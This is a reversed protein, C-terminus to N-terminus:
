QPDTSEPNAQAASGPALRVVPLWSTDPVDTIIVPVRWARVAIERADSWKALKKSEAFTGNAFRLTPENQHVQHVNSLQFLYARGPCDFVDHVAYM